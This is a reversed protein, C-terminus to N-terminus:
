HLLSAVANAVVDAVVGNSQRVLYANGGNQIWAYGLPAPRLRYVYPQAIRYRSQLYYARPMYEGRRWFKKAQGPPLGYPREQLGPPGGDDGRFGDVGRDGHKDGKDHGHGHGPDALAASGVLLSASACLLLFRNM